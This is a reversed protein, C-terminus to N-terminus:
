AVAKQGQLLLQRLELSNKSEMLTNLETFRQLFDPDSADTRTVSSIKPHLTSKVIDGAAWLVEHLKEGQKLGTFNIAIEGQPNDESKVSKGSLQIMNIALDLISVPQGMDLVFLTQEATAMSGAQLTLEVAEQISMFYRTVAADTVTVPGGASIQDTFLPIVSGSSGLVNGFRVTCFRTAASRAAFYQIIHEAWRKSAGMVSSPEVAKDTSVLVFTSVGINSAWEALIQTGTINNRCAEIVNSEVLGVHKYAAAHYISDIAHQGSIRELFDKNTISGLLPVIECPHNKDTLERHINFLNLESAELLLLKAPKQQSIQRCLESGISGGAGTVLVVKDTLCKGLLSPDAPVPERGLLDEIAVERIMKVLHKGTAIDVMAPLVRVKVSLAELFRVIELRRSQSTHPLTVIVDEVGFHEILWQIQDPSYVRCGDIDKGHLSRDDDVFGVVFYQRDQRLSAVLQRGANGAGYIIGYSTLHSTDPLRLLARALFRSGGILVVGILWYIFPVARPVGSIGTMQTMFALTSWLLAAFSMAKIVAWLAQEGLYRVVSRYLGTKVFIPLAILPACLMLLAQEYSPLYPEGLRLSYALWASFFLLTCDSLLTVVQKLPRPSGTLARALSQFRSKKHNSTAPM